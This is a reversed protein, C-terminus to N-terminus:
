HAGKVGKTTVVFINANDPLGAESVTLSTNLQKANYIFRKTPDRDDAKNRYKQIVDSLRDNDNCQIM